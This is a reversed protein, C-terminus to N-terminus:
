TLVFALHIHLNDLDRKSFHFLTEIMQVNDLINLQYEQSLPLM